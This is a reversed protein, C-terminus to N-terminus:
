LKDSRWSERYSTLLYRVQLSKIVGAAATYPQLWKAIIDTKLIGRHLWVLWGHMAGSVMEPTMFCAHRAPSPEEKM